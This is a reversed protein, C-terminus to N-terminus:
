FVIFSSFTKKKIIPFAVRSLLQWKRLDRGVWWIDIECFVKNKFRRSLLSWELLYSYPGTWIVRNTKNNRKRLFSWYCINSKDFALFFIILSNPNKYIFSVLLCSNPPFFSFYVDCMQICIFWPFWFM